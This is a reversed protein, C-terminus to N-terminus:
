RRRNRDAGTVASSADSSDQPQEQATTWRGGTRVRVSAAGSGAAQAEVTTREGMPRPHRLHPGTTHRQQHQRPHQRVAHLRGPQLLRGRVRQRRHHQRRVRLAGGPDLGILRNVNTLGPALPHADDASSADDEWLIIGGRPTFTLNDPSDLVKRGPSEYVLVLTGHDRHRRSPIYRWVQGYGEAFGDPGPADGNKADGGLLHQRRRVLLGGAPQVQRRRRLPGAAHRADRREGPGPRPRRHPGM